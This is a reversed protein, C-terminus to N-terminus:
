ISTASVLEHCLTPGGATYKKQSTLQLQDKAHLNNSVHFCGSKPSPVSSFMSVLSKGISKYKYRKADGLRSFISKQCTTNLTPSELGTLYEKLPNTTHGPLLADEGPEDWPWTKKSGPLVSRRLAILMPISALM